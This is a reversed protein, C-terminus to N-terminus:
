AIGIAVNQLLLNTLNVPSLFLPNAIQFVVWILALGILVPLQGLDAYSLRRRLNGLATGGSEQSVLRPDNIMTSM